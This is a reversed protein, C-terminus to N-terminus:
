KSSIEYCVYMCVYMCAYMHILPNSMLCLRRRYEVQKLYQYRIYVYVITFYVNYSM